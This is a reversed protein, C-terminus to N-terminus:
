HEYGLRKRKLFDNRYKLAASLKDIGKLSDHAVPLSGGQKKNYFVVEFKGDISIKIRYIVDLLINYLMINFLISVAESNNSSLISDM